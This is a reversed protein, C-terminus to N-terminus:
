APIQPLGPTFNGRAVRGCSSKADNASLESVGGVDLRHDLLGQVGEGLDLRWHSRRAPQQSPGTGRVVAVGAAFDVSRLL